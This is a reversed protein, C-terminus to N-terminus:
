KDSWNIRSILAAMANYGDTMEADPEPCLRQVERAALKAATTTEKLREHQIERVDGADLRRKINNREADLCAKVLVNAFCKRWAENRDAYRHEEFAAKARAACWATKSREADFAPASIAVGFMAIVGGTAPPKSAWITDERRTKDTQPLVREPQPNPEMEVQPQTPNYAPLGHGPRLVPVPPPRVLPGRMSPGCGALVGLAVWMAVMKM